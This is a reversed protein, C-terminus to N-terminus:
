LVIANGDRQCNLYVADTLVPLVIGDDRCVNGFRNIKILTLADNVAARFNDRSIRIASCNHAIEVESILFFRVRATNIRPVVPHKELAVGGDLAIWANPGLNLVKDFHAQPRRSMACVSFNCGGKVSLM